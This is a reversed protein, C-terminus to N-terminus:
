RVLTAVSGLEGTIHVIQDQTFDFESGGKRFVSEFLASIIIDYNKPALKRAM